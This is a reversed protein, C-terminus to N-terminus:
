MMKLKQHMEDLSLKAGTYKPFSPVGDNEKRPIIHYHLHFVTQGASPENANLIDVGDYGCDDVYHKAVKQVTDIVHHLTELECDLTNRFHKKPIVLTHGDVDEAIDLFAYTYEDEYIKRSPIDGALIKCFVDKEETM